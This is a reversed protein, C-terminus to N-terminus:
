CYDCINDGDEHRADQWACFEEYLERYHAEDTLREYEEWSTITLSM